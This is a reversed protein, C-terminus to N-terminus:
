PEPDDLFTLDDDKSFGFAQMWEDVESKSISRPRDSGGKASKMSSPHPKPSTPRALREMLKAVGLTNAGVQRARQRLERDDTIM